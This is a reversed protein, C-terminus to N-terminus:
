VMQYGQGSKDIKEASGEGGDNDGCGTEAIADDEGNEICDQDGNGLLGVERELYTLYASAVKTKQNVRDLTVYTRYCLPNSLM